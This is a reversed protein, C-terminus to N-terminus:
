QYVGDDVELGNVYRRIAKVAEAFGKCVVATYGAANLESLWQKQEESVRGGAQRKLEIYLGHSGKVPLPLFIDPVGAKVGTRKLKVATQINRKGGNPIAHMLRLEPYHSAWEFLAAQEEDETPYKIM